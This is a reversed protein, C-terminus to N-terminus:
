GPLILRFSTSTEFLDFCVDSLISSPLTFTIYLRRSALISKHSKKSCFVAMRLTASSELLSADEYALAPQIYYHFEREREREREREEVYM